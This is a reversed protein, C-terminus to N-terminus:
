SEYVVLSSTIAVYRRCVRPSEYESVGEGKIGYHSCEGDCQQSLNDRFEVASSRLQTAHPSDYRLLHESRIQYLRLLNSNSCTLYPFGVLFESHLKAVESALILKADCLKNILDIM